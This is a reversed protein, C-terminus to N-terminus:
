HFLKTVEEISFNYAQAISRIVLKEALGLEGGIYDPAIKGSLLYATMKAEQPTIEKLFDSLIDIMKLNSSVAELESFLKALKYFRIKKM